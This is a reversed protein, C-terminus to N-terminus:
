KRVQNAAASVSHMSTAASTSEASSISAHGHSHNPLLHCHMCAHGWGTGVTRLFPTLPSTAWFTFASSPKRLTWSKWCGTAVLWSSHQVASDTQCTLPVALMVGVKVVPVAPLGLRSWVGRVLGEATGLHPLHGCRFGIVKIDFELSREPDKIRCKTQQFIFTKTAADPEHM